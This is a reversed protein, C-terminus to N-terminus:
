FKTAGGLAKIIAQYIAKEELGRKNNNGILKAPTKNDVMKDIEVM